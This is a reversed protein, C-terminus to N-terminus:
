RLETHNTFYEFIKPLVMYGWEFPISMIETAFIGGVSNDYQEDALM